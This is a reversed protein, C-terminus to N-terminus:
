ILMIGWDGLVLGGEEVDVRRESGGFAKAGSLVARRFGEGV